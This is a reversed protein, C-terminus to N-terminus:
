AHLSLEYRAKRVAAKAAQASQFDAYSIGHAELERLCEVALALTGVPDLNRAERILRKRRSHM